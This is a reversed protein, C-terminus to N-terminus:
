SYPPRRRDADPHWTRPSEFFDDDFVNLPLVEEIHCMLHTNALTYTRSFTTANKGVELLSFAQKGGLEAFIQGIGMGGRDALEIAERTVATVVSSAVCAPTGDVAIVVHRRWLGIKVRENVLVTVSVKRNHYASLIRQLNGNATLVIRQLPTFESSLSLDMDLHSGGIDGLHSSSDDRDMISQVMTTTTTTTTAEEGGAARCPVGRRQGPCTPVLASGCGFWVCSLLAVRVM